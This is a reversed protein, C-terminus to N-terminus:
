SNGKLAKTMELIAEEADQSLDLAKDKMKEFDEKKIQIQDFGLSEM